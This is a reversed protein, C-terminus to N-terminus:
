VGSDGTAGGGDPKTEGEVQPNSAGVIVRELAAIRGELEEIRDLLPPDDGRESPRLDGLAGAIRQTAEEGRRSVRERASVGRRVVDDLLEQARQRTETASGATASLTREVAARLADGV